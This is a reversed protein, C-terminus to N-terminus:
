LGNEIIKFIRRAALKNWFDLCTCPNLNKKLKETSKHFDGSTGFKNKLFAM